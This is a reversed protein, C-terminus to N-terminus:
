RTAAKSPTEEDDEGIGFMPESRNGTSNGYGDDASPRGAEFDDEDDHVDWVSTGRPIRPASAAGTGGRPAPGTTASGSEADDYEYGDGYGHGEGLPQYLLAIEQRRRIRRNLLVALYLFLSSGLFNALIDGSQFTKWQTTLPYWLTLSVPLLSQVFESM